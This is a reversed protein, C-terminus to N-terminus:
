KDECGTTQKGEMHIGYSFQIGITLGLSRRLPFPGIGLGLGGVLLVSRKSVKLGWFPKLSISGWIRRLGLLEM